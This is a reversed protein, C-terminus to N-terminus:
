DRATLSLTRGVRELFWEPREAAILAEHAAAVIRRREDPHDLYHRCVEALDSYDWKVPVYTVGPVFIDPATEVHAMDPKVLLCGCLIAEFDRWCLEGYGFPSVCITSALMEAYYDDQAVRNRPVHVNMTDAMAELRTAVTARLPHIWADPSVFARSCVDIPRTDSFSPTIKRSLLFIKDDLAINWGIALRDVLTLDLPPSAPIANDAFSRGHERAVYDTLNSKGIRPVAYESRDRYAHKKVYRDCLAVLEPWLINLDDDGDFYVLRTASGALADKLRRAIDLVATADARFELKLGVIAYRTLQAPSLRLAQEIPMSLTVLGFRRYLPAAWRAFPAFQQESTYAKGDSVLLMRVPARGGARDLAARARVAAQALVVRAKRAKAAWARSKATM